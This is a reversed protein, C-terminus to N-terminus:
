RPTLPRSAAGLLRFVPDDRATDPHVEFKNEWLAASSKSPDFGAPDSLSAPNQHHLNPAVVQSIVLTPVIALLGSRSIFSRDNACGKLHDPLVYVLRPVEPDPNASRHTRVFSSGRMRGGRLSAFTSLNDRMQGEAFAFGPEADPFMTPPADPKPLLRLKEFVRKCPESPTLRILAGLPLSMCGLVLSIAWEKGGM